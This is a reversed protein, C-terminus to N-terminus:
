PHPGIWEIEKGLVKRVDEENDVFPVNHYKIMIHAIADSMEGYNGPTDLMDATKRTYADKGAPTGDNAGLTMKIGAPKTKGARVADPEQDGDVDIAVWSNYDSPMDAASKIDFNGGKYAYSKEIMDYIEDTVDVNDPDNTLEKAPLDIWDNKKGGSYDSFVKENLYKRWSEMLMKM